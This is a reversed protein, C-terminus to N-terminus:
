AGCCLNGANFGGGIGGDATTSWVLQGSAQKSPPAPKDAPVPTATAPLTPTATVIVTDGKVKVEVEKEVEVVVTEVVTDGKETVIVTQIVIEPAVADGVADSGGCAVVVMAALALVLLTLKPSVNIYRM